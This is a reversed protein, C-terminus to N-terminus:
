STLLMFFVHLLHKSQVSGLLAPEQPLVAAPLSFISCFRTRRTLFCALVVQSLSHLLVAGDSLWQAHMSFLIAPYAASCPKSCSAAM